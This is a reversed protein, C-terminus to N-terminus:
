SVTEPLAFSILFVTEQTLHFSNITLLNPWKYRKDLEARSFFAHKGEKKAKHLVPLLEKRAGLLEQPMDQYIKFDTIKCSSHKVFKEKGALM